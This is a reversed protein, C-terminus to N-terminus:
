CCGINEGAITPADRDLVFRLNGGFCHRQQASDIAEYFCFSADRANDMVHSGFNVVLTKVREQIVRSDCARVKCRTNWTANNLTRVAFCAIYQAGGFSRTNRCYIVRM